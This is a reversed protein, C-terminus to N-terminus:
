TIALLSISKSHCKGIACLLRAYSGVVAGGSKGFFFPFWCMRLATRVAEENRVKLERTSVSIRVCWRWNRASAGRQVAVHLGRAYVNGGWQWRCDVAGKNVVKYVGQQCGWKWDLQVCGKGRCRWGKCGKCDVWFEATLKRLVDAWPWLWQLTAGTVGGFGFVTM